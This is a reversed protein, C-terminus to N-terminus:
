QIREVILPLRNVAGGAVITVSGALAELARPFREPEDTHLTMLLQGSTIEDGPKAHLEIGAGAQVKEGQRSRGAGLRWAAVGVKLADMGVM